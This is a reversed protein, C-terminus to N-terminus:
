MEAAFGFPLMRNMFICIATELPAGSDRINLTAHLLRGHKVAFALTAAETEFLKLIDIKGPAKDDLVNGAM